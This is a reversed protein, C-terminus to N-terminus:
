NMKSVRWRSTTSDYWVYAQQDATLTIDAGTTNHFRNAATSSASENILLINQSGVNVIIHTQGNTQAATFTLGTVNRAADSNWRQYYSSGGPNYDNQNGTIQSPSTPTAAFTGGASASDTFGVVKAAPRSLGTDITGEPSGSSTWLYQGTSYTQTGNVTVVV